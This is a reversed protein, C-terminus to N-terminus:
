RGRNQAVKIPMAHAPQLTQTILALLKGNTAKKAQLSETLSAIICDKQNNMEILREVTENKQVAVMALNNLSTAM